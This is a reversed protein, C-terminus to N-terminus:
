QALRRLRTVDYGNFDLLETAAALRDPRIADGRNLVWGFRGDPTGVAATALDESLWLFWVPTGDEVPTLRGPGRVTYIGTLDCLRAGIMGAPAQSFAAGQPCDDFGAVVQWAGLASAADFRLSSAIVRSTDRYAPAAVPPAEAACGALLLVALAGRRM